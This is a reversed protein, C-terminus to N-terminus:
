HPVRLLMASFPRRPSHHGRVADLVHARGPPADHLVTERHSALSFAMRVDVGDGEGDEAPVADLRAFAFVREVPEVGDDFPEPCGADGDVEGGRRGGRRDPQVLMMRFHQRAVPVPVDDVGAAALRPPGGAGHELLVREGQAAFEGFVVLVVRIDGCPMHAVLVPPVVAVVVGVVREGREVHPALLPVARDVRQVLRPARREPGLMHVREILHRQRPVHARVRHDVRGLLQVELPEAVVHEEVEVLRFAVRDLRDAGALREGRVEHDEGVLAAHVVRSPGAFDVEDGVVVVEVLPSDCRSSSTQESASMSESARPLGQYTISCPVDATWHFGSLVRLRPPSSSRSERAWTAIPASAMLKKWHRCDREPASANWEAITGCAPSSVFTSRPTHSSPSVSAARESAPNCPVSSFREPVAIRNLASLSHAVRESVSGLM